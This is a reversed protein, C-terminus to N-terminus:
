VAVREAPNHCQRASPPEYLYKNLGYPLGKLSGKNRRRCVESTSIGLAAPSKPCLSIDGTAYDQKDAASNADM